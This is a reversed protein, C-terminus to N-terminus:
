LLTYMGVANFIASAVITTTEGKESPNVEYCLKGKPAVVRESSFHTQLGSEDTNWIHSPCDSINLETLLSEYSDFWNRVVAKNMGMSRGVSLSEPKRVSVTPHRRLFGHFWYHGAARRKENFGQL